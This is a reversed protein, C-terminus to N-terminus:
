YHLDRRAGPSPKPGPHLSPRPRRNPIRNASTGHRSVCSRVPGFQNRAAPWAEQSGSQAGGKDALGEQFRVATPEGPRAPIRGICPLGLRTGRCPPDIERITAPPPGHVPSFDAGRATRVPQRREFPVGNLLWSEKSLLRYYLRCQACPLVVPDVPAHAQDTHAVSRDEIKDRLKEYWVGSANVRKQNPAVRSSAIRLMNLCPSRFMDTAIVAESSSTGLV